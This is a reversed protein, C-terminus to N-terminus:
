PRKGSDVNHEEEHMETWVHGCHKCKYTYEFDEVDITIPVNEEVIIPRVSSYMGPYGAGSGIGGYARKVETEELKEDVMKKGAIKIHFRKGCSPCFRFLTRVQSM